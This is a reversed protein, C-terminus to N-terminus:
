NGGKLPTTFVVLSRNGLWGHPPAQHQVLFQEIRLDSDTRGGDGLEVLRTELGGLGDQGGPEVPQAGDLDERRDRALDELDREGVRRGGGLDLGRRGRDDEVGVVRGLHGLDGGGGRFVLGGRDQDLPLRHEGGLELLGGLGVTRRHLLEAGGGLGVHRGLLRDHHGVLGQGLGLVLVHVEDVDPDFGRGLERAGHTQAVEEVLQGLPLHRVARAVDLVEEGDARHTAGRAARLGELDVVHVHEHDGTEVAADVATQEAVVVDRHRVSLGLVQDLVPLQLLDLDDPQALRPGVQGARVPRLDVLRAFLAVALLAGVAARGGEPGHHLIEARHGALVPHGVLLEAAVHRGHVDRDERASELRLLGTLQVEQGVVLLLTRELPAPPPEVVLVADPEDHPGRLVQGLVVREDLVQPVVGLGGLGRREEGDDQDATVETVVQAPAVQRDVFQDDLLEHRGVLLRVVELHAGPGHGVLPQGTAPLDLAFFGGLGRRLREGLAVFALRQVGEEVGGRVVLGGGVAGQQGAAGM